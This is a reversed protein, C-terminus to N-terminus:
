VCLDPGAIGRACTLWSTALVIPESGTPSIWTASTTSLVSDDLQPVVIVVLTVGGIDVRDDTPPAELADDPDVVQDSILQLIVTPDTEAGTWARVESTVDAVGVIDASTPPFPVPPVPLGDTLYEDAGYLTCRDVGDPSECGIESGADVVDWGEDGEAVVVTLGDPPGPGLIANALGMVADGPVCRISTLVAGGITDAPIM